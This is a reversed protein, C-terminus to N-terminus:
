KRLSKLYAVVAPKKAETAIDLPTMAPVAALRIPKQEVGPPPSPAYYEREPLAITKLDTKAGNEILVKVVDLHGARAAHHLPAWGDGSDADIKAHHNLLVQASRANGERAAWHLPTFSESGYPKHPQRFRELENVLKPHKTLLADLHDAEDHRTFLYIAAIMASEYKDAATAEMPVPAVFAVACLIAFM